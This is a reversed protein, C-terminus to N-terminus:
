WSSLLSRAQEELARIMQPSDNGWPIYHFDGGGAKVFTERNLQDIEELTELCDTVFGPCIVDLRSVGRTGLEAVTDITAPGLWQAPGFVSQFTTLCEEESLGLGQRLAAATQLCESRYPDGAEDMAVPLSHFSCLLREGEDFHPRGVRAWHARVADELADLYASATPFSSGLRIQPHVRRSLLWKAVADNVSAVTSASYQPYAPLIAIRNVGQASLDDLVDGLAPEGYRMAPVVRIGLEDHLIQAQRKTYFDLPSGQPMWVTAYKEASARPRVRLIIGELIPWWLFRPLEIVRRDMLFERLYSRVEKVELSKPTGLNVLVLALEDAKVKELRSRLLSHPFPPSSIRKFHCETM